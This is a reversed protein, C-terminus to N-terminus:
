CSSGSRRRARLRAAGRSAAPERGHHRASRREPRGPEFLSAAPSSGTASGSRASRAPSATSGSPSASRRWCGGPRAPFRPPAATMAPRSRSRRIPRISSSRLCAMATSRSRWPSGSWAAASSSSTRASWKRGRANCRHLALRKVRSDGFACSPSLSCKPCLFHRCCARPVGPWAAEFLPAVARLPGSRREFLKKPPM